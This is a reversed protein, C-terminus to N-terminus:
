KTYQEQCPISHLSKPDKLDPSIHQLAAPDSSNWKRLLFCGDSFLCHLQGQLEIAGDVSDAGTLADDVYFSQDVAAAALPYQHHLDAANQKVSMNAAFSSASIGFTVRTMRYDTLPEDPNKRWVFRHFDRDSEALEVARYMRSVDAVLAVRHLRFRILVDILPPHITPGVMLTDNFSVGSSSKASADFVARIKTTTSSEKRVAHMPLYFVHQPPKELDAVPVVEAHDMDFYEQIVTNVEKFQGKLQLSRELALFRRVAQSRSEGLTMSGPKRPLPVSFRGSDTRFHNDRFHQVVSQEELTYTTDGEPSEETEWFQRLLDDGLLCSTHHTAVHSVASPLSDARGALVWGFETELAVPSNSPGVRRGALIVEVFINVGLLIDIKGPRGFSPDAMRLDCLHSWSPDLAIPHIPLQCTVRPVIVATVDFKKSLPQTAAISFNTVAQVPSKHVLGAVGSIRASHPSRPLSLSQALRESIFSASSASDLLARAKVTSGDPADVAVQCTMLLSSATLGMAAHSPLLGAQTNGDVPVEDGDTEVHLLTHHPRQCKRCKHQSKCQRVFHGPRLCNLCMGHEKLLSMMRDHTLGKFRTCSYLPHKETKCMICSATTSDSMGSAFSTVHKYPSPAKKPVYSDSKQQKVSTESAQARLNIFDLLERYHPISASSQSHKQWEFLTTQDLKLELISTVFPGSPEYGMSKLARLHQQVADHLRRLERGSGDKLGPTEMIVKVHGQHILRPRDYRTKLSEIAESYHDGTRSLGEIVSKASGGKLSQQLYVLKEADSISTRDHVSICFQEWFSKWRLLSGDFTPVDLKPLKVGTSDKSSLPTPRTDAAHASLLRKLDLSCQSLTKELQSQSRMLDDDEALDLTLLRTTVERLEGKMDTLQEEHHRLLCIDDTGASLDSVAKEIQELGKKLHAVRRSVVKHAGHDPTTPCAAMIQGLEVTFLSVEDNHLDLVEQEKVLDEESELLDVIKSHLEQFDQDSTELRKAAHQALNLTKPEDTKAELDKLGKALRTISAKAVGRRKRLASIPRATDTMTTLSVLVHAFSLDFDM